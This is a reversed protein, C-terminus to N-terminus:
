TSAGAKITEITMRHIEAVGDHNVTVEADLERCLIAAAKIHHRLQEVRSMRDEGVIYRGYEEASVHAAKHKPKARPKRQRKATATATPLPIPGKSKLLDILAPADTAPICLPAKGAHGKRLEPMARVDLSLGRAVRRVTTHDRHTVAALDVLRSWNSAGNTVNAPPTM